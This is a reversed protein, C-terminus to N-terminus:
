VDIVLINPALHFILLLGPESFQVASLELLKKQPTVLLNWPLSLMLLLNRVGRDKRNSLGDTTKVLLLLSIGLLITLILTLRLSVSLLPKLPFSALGFNARKM